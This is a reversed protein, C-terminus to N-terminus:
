PAAARLWAVLEDAPLPRALHFGQAYRCGMATLAEAQHAHEVGHGITTLAMTRGLGVLAETLARAAPENPAGLRAVLQRSIKLTDFPLREIAALAANGIGLNDISLRLGLAKLQMLVPRLNEGRREGIREDFELVLREAPWHNAALLAALDRVFDPDRHEAFSPSRSAPAKADVRARGCPCDGRHTVFEPNARMRAVM